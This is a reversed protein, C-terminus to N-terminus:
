YITVVNEKIDFRFKFSYQLAEMAQSITENTFSGHLMLDEHEKKKFVFKVDYWREMKQAAEYFSEDEFSLINRTWATEVAITEGAHYTLKKLAIVPEKSFRQQIATNEKQAIPKLYENLLVLKENPKLIWKEDPRKNLTVEVSGHILSTEIKKDDPYSRVNFTTGLVKINAASTKVIFPKQPNKVVDFYAEGDLHVERIINGFSKDYELKSGANLWVTSGDPLIIKSRNGNKTAVSSVAEAVPAAPKQSKNFYLFTSVSLLLVSALILLNKGHYRQWATKRGAFIEDTVLETKTEQFFDEKHNVLHRMFAAEGAQINQKGQQKWMETILDAQYQAGPNLLILADLEVLEEELAEGALKKTLLNWLKDQNTDSSNHM